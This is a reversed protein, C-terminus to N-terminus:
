VELDDVHVHAQYSPAVGDSRSGWSNGSWHTVTDIRPSVVDALENLQTNNDTRAVAFGVIDLNPQEALLMRAVATMVTGKTVLDDVLVIKTGAALPFSHQLTLTELHEDVTPRNDATQYSSKRIATSRTVHVEVRSAAGISRIIQSLLYPTWQEKGTYKNSGPIPVAVADGSLHSQFLPSNLKVRRLISVLAAMKPQKVKYNVIDRAKGRLGSSNVTPYVLVSLVPITLPSALPTNSRGLLNKM